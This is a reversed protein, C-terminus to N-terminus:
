RAPQIKRWVNWAFWIRADRVVESTIELGQRTRTGSWTKLRNWDRQLDHEHALDKLYAKYWFGLRILHVSIIVGLLVIAAYLGSGIMVGSGTNPDAGVSQTMGSVVKTAALPSGQPFFSKIFDVQLMLVSIVAAFILWRGAIFRWRELSSEGKFLRWLEHIPMWLTLLLYFVGGIGTGPLGAFM